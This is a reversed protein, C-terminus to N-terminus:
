GRRRNGGRRLGRINLRDLPSYDRSLLAVKTTALHVYRDVMALTTHGLNQKLLLVNGGNILFTAHESPNKLRVALTLSLAPYYQGYWGRRSPIDYSLHEKVPDIRLSDGVLRPRKAMRWPQKANRYERNGFVQRIISNSTM